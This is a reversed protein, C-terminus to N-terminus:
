LITIVGAIWLGSTYIAVMRWAQTVAEAKIALSKSVIM